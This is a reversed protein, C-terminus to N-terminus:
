RFWHKERFDEMNLGSDPDPPVIYQKKADMHQYRAIKVCGNNAVILEEGSGCDQTAHRGTSKREITSQPYWRFEPRLSTPVILVV